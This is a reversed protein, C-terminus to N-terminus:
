INFLYINMFVSKVKQENLTNKRRFIILIICSVLRKCSSFSPSASKSFSSGRKIGLYFCVLVQGLPVGFIAILFLTREPIRQANRKRSASKDLQMVVLGIINIAILYYIMYNPM